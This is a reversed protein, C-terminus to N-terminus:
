LCVEDFLGPTSAPPIERREPNSGSGTEGSEAATAVQGSISGGGIMAIPNNRSVADCFRIIREASHHRRDWEGSYDKNSLRNSSHFSCQGTPLDVYLVWEFGPTDPDFKWGWAIGLEAAHATLLRDVEGLSWNKVDYAARRWKGRRYEKARSSRKQARFLAVALEGAPGLKALEAYYAKTVDGDNQTFVELAPKM